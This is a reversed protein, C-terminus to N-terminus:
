KSKLTNNFICQGEIKNYMDLEKMITIKLLIIKVDNANVDTGKM